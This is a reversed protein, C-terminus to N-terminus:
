RSYTGMLETEELIKGQMAKRLQAVSAGPPLNVSERLAYLRFFYRHRPGKPPRPGDYGIKKFDTVGQRAGGLEDLTPNKPIGAALHTVMSPIGYIVWHLWTGIPADPDDCIIAVEKTGPPLDTWHLSPSLNDHDLAFKDPLREGNTFDPSTLKM